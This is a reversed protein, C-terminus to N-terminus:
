TGFEKRRAEKEGKDNFVLVCATISDKHVDMRCCRRYVVQM